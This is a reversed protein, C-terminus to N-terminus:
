IFHISSKNTGLQNDIAQLTKEREDEFADIPINISDPLSCIKFQCEPRVDILLHEESGRLQNYDKCSVRQTEWDLININTGKDNYNTVGCFQTYDFSGLVKRRDDINSNAHQCMVCTDVQRPRLKIVRSTFDFGDFIMM